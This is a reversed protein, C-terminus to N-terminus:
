GWGASIKRKKGTNDKNNKKIKLQEKKKQDDKFKSVNEDKSPWQLIEELNYVLWGAKDFASDNINKLDKQSLNKQM